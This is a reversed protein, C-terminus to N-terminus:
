RAGWWDLVGGLVGVACTPQEVPGHGLARLHEVQVAASLRLYRRFARDTHEGRRRWLSRISHICHGRMEAPLNRDGM